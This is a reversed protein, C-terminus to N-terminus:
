LEMFYLVNDRLFRKIDIMKNELFDRDTKMKKVTCEWIILVRIDDHRLAKIVIRDHHINKEFKNIWFETNSKPVYSYKCNNHRHWFCGHIFIVARKRTFFIDPCGKIASYNIRFRYNNRHLLSRIFREPKTDVARIKSMNLSRAEKSIIDM